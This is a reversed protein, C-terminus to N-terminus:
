TIFLSPSPSLYYCYEVMEALSQAQGAMAGDFHAPYEHLSVMFAYKYHFYPFEGLTGEGGGEALILTRAQAAAFRICFRFM